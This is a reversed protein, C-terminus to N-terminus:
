EVEIRYSVMRLELQHLEEKWRRKFEKMWKRNKTTDTVDVVLRVLNDTYLVGEHHWQGEIVQTEFSVARFQNAIERTAKALLEKPVPTGDNFQLPLMVEFRRWKTM